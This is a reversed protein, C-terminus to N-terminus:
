KIPQFMKAQKSLIELDEKRAFNSIEESVVDLFSKIKKMEQRMIELEKKIELFNKTSDEKIEILNKGILFLRDKQVRQKGEIERIKATLDYAQGLYESQEDGMNKRLLSPKFEKHKRKQKIWFM